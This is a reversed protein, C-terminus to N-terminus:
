EFKPLRARGDFSADKDLYSIERLHNHFDAYKLESNVVPTEALDRSLRLCEVSSLDALLAQHAV